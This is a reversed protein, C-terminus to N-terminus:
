EEEDSQPDSVNLNSYLDTITSNISYEGGASQSIIKHERCRLPIVSPNNTGANKNCWREWRLGYARLRSILLYLTRKIANNFRLDCDEVKAHVFEAYLCRWALILITAQATNAAKSDSVRGLLLFAATDDTPAPINLDGLLNLIPDWFDSRIQLCTALHLISNRQGCCRCADSPDGHDRVYLTRHWVKLWTIWDRPTVFRSNIKFVKPFPITSQLRQPWATIAPPDKFSRDTFTRTMTAISLTDLSVKTGDLLWGATRTGSGTPGRIRNVKEYNMTGAWTEVNHISLVGRTLNITRDTPHPIGIPDLWLVRAKKRAEQITLAASPELRVYETKNNTIVAYISNPKTEGPRLTFGARLDNMIDPPIQAIVARIESARQRLFRGNRRRNGLRVIWDEWENLTFPTNTTSNMVDSLITTNLTQIMYKKVAYHCSIEFRTNHWLSEGAINTRDNTDLRLKLRFFAQLCQRWYKAGKPITSM